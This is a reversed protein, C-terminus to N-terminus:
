HKRGSVCGTRQGPARENGGADVDIKVGTALWGCKINERHPDHDGAREDARHQEPPLALCFPVFRLSLLWSYVSILVFRSRALVNVVSYSTELKSNQAKRRM